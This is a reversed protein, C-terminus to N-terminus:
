FSRIIVYQRSIHTPMHYKIAEGSEPTAKKIITRLDKLIKQIPEPFTAIYEDITTATTKIM